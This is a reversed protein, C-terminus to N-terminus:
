HAKVRAHGSKAPTFIFDSHTQAQFRESALVYGSAEMIALVQSINFNMVEIAVIPRTTSLLQQAGRLVAVEGGDVDIKLLRCDFAKLSDLTVTPVAVGGGAASVNSYDTRIFNFHAEGARDAVAAGLNSVDVLDSLGAWDVAQRLKTVLAPNCEFATVRCGVEGALYVTHNGINAGVDLVHDGPKVMGALHQLARLEYFRGAAHQLSISFNTPEFPFRYTRSRGSIEVSGAGSLWQGALIKAGGEMQPFLAQVTESDDMAVACLMAIKAEAAVDPDTAAREKFIALADSFQGANFLEALARARPSRGSPGMRDLIELAARYDSSAVALQLSVDLDLPANSPFDSIRGLAVKAEDIRNIYILASAVPILQNRDLADQNPLGRYVDAVLRYRGASFMARLATHIVVSSSPDQEYARLAADVERVRDGISRYLVAINNSAGADGAISAPTLEAIVEAQRGARVIAALDM